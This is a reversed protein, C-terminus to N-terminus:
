EKFHATFHVTNPHVIIDNVPHTNLNFPTHTITDDIPTNHECGEGRKVLFTGM